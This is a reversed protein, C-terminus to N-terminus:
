DQRLIQSVERILEKMQADDDDDSACCLRGTSADKSAAALRRMDDAKSDDPSCPICITRQNEKAKSSPLSVFSLILVSIAVSVVINLVFLWIFLCVRRLRHPKQQRRTLWEQDCRVEPQGKFMPSLIVDPRLTFEMVRHDQGPTRYDHNGACGHSSTAPSVSPGQQLLLPQGNYCQTAM